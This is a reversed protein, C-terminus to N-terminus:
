SRFQVGAKDKFVVGLQRYHAVVDQRAQTAEALGRVHAENAVEALARAM